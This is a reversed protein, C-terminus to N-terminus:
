KKPLTVPKVNGCDAKLWKGSTEMTTTQTKGDATARVTMKSSYAEPSTFTFQGEGSSPPNTCAFAIKQVNGSRQNQTVRCGDQMPMDNRAIMEQTMCAQVVMGGGAGPKGMRVGQQAMVAEMQKRQAPPMSALQKQMEAMAQDMEPNNTRNHIEWLGPKMSQAAAPLCAAALLSAAVLSPIRMLIEWLHL